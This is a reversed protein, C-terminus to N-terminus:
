TSERNTNQDFSHILKIFNACKNEMNYISKVTHLSNKGIFSRFQESELAEVITRSYDDVCDHRYLLCNLRDCLIDSESAQNDLSDDTVILKGYAMAHHASLGICTPVTFITALQFWCALMKEDYVPGTMIVNDKVGLQEVLRTISDYNEGGGILVIKVNPIEKLVKVSAEVLYHAKKINSLRVVQLVVHEDGIGYETKIEGLLVPDFKKAEDFIKTEDIATGIVQIKKSSVGLTALVRGGIKSYVACKAVVMSLLKYFINSYITGGGIRHFMGWAILITKEKLFLNHVFIVLVVPLLFISRPNASFIVVDPKLSIITSLLKCDLELGKYKLIPRGVINYKNSVTTQNLSSKDNSDIAISLVLKDDCEVIKSFFEDSYKPIVNQIVLVKKM